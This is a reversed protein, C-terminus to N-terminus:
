QAPTPAPTPAGGPRQVDITPVSVTENHHGVSVSPLSAQFSPPQVVAPRTQWIHIWGIAVLLAFILAALGLLVLLFRM